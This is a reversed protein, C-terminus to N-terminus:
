RAAGPLLVRLDGARRVGELRRLSAEEALFFPTLPMEHLVKRQTLENVLSVHHAAIKGVYLPEINGGGRLYDLLKLLGRLYIADKTLGGGRFIRMTAAWAVRGVFGYDENLLRFVEVFEAGEVAVHVAIM